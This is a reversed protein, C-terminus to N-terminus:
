DFLWKEYKKQEGSTKNIKLEISASGVGFWLLCKHCLFCPFDNKSGNEYSNGVKFLKTVGVRKALRRTRAVRFTVFNLTCFSKGFFEKQFGTKRVM